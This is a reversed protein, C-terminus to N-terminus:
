EAPKNALSVDKEIAVQGSEYVFDADTALGEDLLFDGARVRDICEQVFDVGEAAKVVRFVDYSEIANDDIVLFFVDCTKKQAIGCSPGQAVDYEFVAFLAIETYGPDLALSPGFLDHM